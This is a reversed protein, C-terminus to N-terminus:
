PLRLPREWGTRTYRIDARRPAHTKFLTPPLCRGITQFSRYSFYYSPYAYLRLYLIRISTVTLSPTLDSPSHHGTLSLTKERSTSRLELRAVALSSSTKRPLHIFPGMTLITLNNPILPSLRTQTILPSIVYHIHRLSRSFLSTMQQLLISPLQPLVQAKM